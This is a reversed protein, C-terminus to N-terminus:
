GWSPDQGLEGALRNFTDKLRLWQPVHFFGMARSLEVRFRQGDAASRESVTELLTRVVADMTPSPLELLAGLLARALEPGRGPDALSGDVWEGVASRRAGAPADAWRAVEARVIPEWREADEVRLVTLVDGAAPGLRAIVEAAQARVPEPAAPVGLAQRAALRARPPDALREHALALNAQAMAYGDPRVSRPHAVAATRFAAVAEAARDAALHALGLANAAAGLAAHDGAHSAADVARQLVAAAADADGTSLLTAGLERAAASAQGALRVEDFGRLAREFCGVAAADRGSARHVLGLNYRAAAEEAAMANREFVTAAREFATAAGPLDGLARLAAGLMNTAKAHEVPLRQPDFGSVSVRLAAAAEGSRDGNLLVTGLHFQATAHQVPYRDHPYRRLRERLEDEVDDSAAVYL